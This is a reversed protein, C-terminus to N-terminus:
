RWPGSGDSSIGQAAEDTLVTFREVCAYLVDLTSDDMTIKGLRVGDLVNEMEHALTQMEELGFMGSIGKLLACKSFPHQIRDPDVEDAGDRM